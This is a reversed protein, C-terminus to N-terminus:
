SEQIRLKCAHIRSQEEASSVNLVSKRFKGRSLYRFLPFVSSTSKWVFFSNGWIWLLLSWFRSIEKKKKNAWDVVELQINAFAISKRWLRLNWYDWAWCIAAKWCFCDSCCTAKIFCIHSNNFGEQYISNACFATSGEAGKTANTGVLREPDLFHSLLM